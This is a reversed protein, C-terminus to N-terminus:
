DEATNWIFMFHFNTFIKIGMKRDNSIKLQSSAHFVEVQAPKYHHWGTRHCVSILNKANM